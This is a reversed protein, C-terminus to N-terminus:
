RGEGKSINRRKHQQHPSMPTLNMTSLDLKKRGEPSQVRTWKPGKEKILIIIHLEGARELFFLIFHPQNNSLVASQDIDILTSGATSVPAFGTIKTGHSSL